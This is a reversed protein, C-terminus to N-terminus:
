FNLFFILFSLVFLSFSLHDLRQIGIGDADRKIKSLINKFILDTVPWLVM